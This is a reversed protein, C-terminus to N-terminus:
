PRITPHIGGAWVITVRTYHHSIVTVMQTTARLALRPTLPEITYRGPALAVRFRGAASSRVLRIARAGSTARIALAAHYPRLCSQGGADAGECAAIM